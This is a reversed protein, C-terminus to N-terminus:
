DLTRGHGLYNFDQPSRPHIRGDGGQKLVFGALGGAVPGGGDV